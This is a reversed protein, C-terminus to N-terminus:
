SLALHILLWQYRGHKGKKYLIEAFHNPVHALVKGIHVVCSKMKSSSNTYNNLPTIGPSERINQFHICKNLNMTKWQKCSTIIIFTQNDPTLIKMDACHEFLAGIIMLAAQFM